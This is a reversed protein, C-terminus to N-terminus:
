GQGVLSVTAIERWAPDTPGRQMLALREIPASWRGTQWESQQLQEVMQRATQGKLRMAMTLHPTFHRHKDRGLINLLASRVALLAPTVAVQLYIVPRDAPPFTAIGGLSLVFPQFESQSEQLRAMAETENAPTAPGSRWYTGALTVHPATIRATAPDYQERLAQIRNALEGQPFAGVFIRYDQVQPMTM